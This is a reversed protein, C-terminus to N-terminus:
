GPPPRRDLAVASFNQNFTEGSGYLRISFNSWDAGLDLSSIRTDNLQVPTGNRRSEGFSSFRAFAHGDSGLTRSLTVSGTLDSTGAETDISGRQNEPVLVYGGTRLAQGAVAIGWNGFRKGGSFSTAGTTKNGGSLELDLFSEPATQSRINVVGGLAGSGYLDSTAGNYVQVNEVSVRSLRNWYVWGGFPSNLPVGDLLVVARSAGNAGVGRLSVGQSTPNATLGGSRRFLSFGPAQRLVDDITLAGSSAIERQSLAFQSSPTAPIRQDDATVLIREIVSAPDLRIRLPGNSANSIDLRVTNFGPSTISLTGYPQASLVTFSGTADTVTRVIDGNSAFEVSAREIAAGTPDSVTGSIKNLPQQAAANLVAAFL